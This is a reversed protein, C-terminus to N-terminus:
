QCKLRTIICDYDLICCNINTRPIVTKRALTSEGPSVGVRWARGHVEPRVRPFCGCEACQRRAWPGCGRRGCPKPFRGILRGPKPFNGVRCDTDERHDEPTNTGLYGALTPTWKRNHPRAEVIWVRGFITHPISGSGFEPM